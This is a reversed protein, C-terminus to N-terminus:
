IWDDPGFPNPVVDTTIGGVEVMPADIVAWTVGFDDNSVDIWRQVTFYNKCAGPMQDAEPRVVAWPVDMRVAGEPVSFAYGFHVGEKTRVQEKDVVNIIDVRDLGDVIRVERTLKRCGPADCEAVLSAVLPGREKVTIAVPGNRKPDKPDRGAVYFYDNLGLGSKTDVLNAEMGDASLRAMAGTKEDLAVSLGAGSVTEGEATASGSGPAEGASITYRKAGFPPVDSAVFALQGTSLRQSPVAKGDPATVRDGAKTCPGPLLVLDTRPWSCTNLVQVAGKGDPATGDPEHSPVGTAARLLERSQKEGQVAFDQKIKWQSRTFDSDPQSISCHAGWTHEDYLVVNRWAAYFEEAPYSKPRRMAWIAEAQVLREASARNMGTERSSSGAGDEWYPTFDGRVEPIQDGYRREFERLLEGTTTIAMKPYAYKANWDKVFEPLDPDPPGNDGGISYRLQVMDYPYGADALGQLYDFFLEPKVQSISGSLGGHFWAYGKGAMWCLVKEKGSPSVWYFPRDGWAALTHGIRHGPNPGISFYKVGSQAMVPVLGWTYGPVDSIMAADITLGYQSRLRRGCEVLWFLEEPRCLASLENGYLADLHMQGRRVADLFAERKEDTAQKLYSDVAWLVEANWKFKAGTPYDATKRAIEIAQELHGWQRQEVETQVHTYGIDVHSHPLFYVVWRRVPGLEVTGQAVPRGAVKLVVAAQTEAKMAPVADEVTQRGTHLTIEKTKGGPLELVAETSEAYPYDINVRLPLRLKDDEKMLAPLAAVELTTREPSLEPPAVQFFAIERGGVTSHPGIATVQWRVYRATVPDFQAFTTGGPTNAHDVEVKAIPHGFDPGDSFILEASDVTAPDRRDVHRFGAIPVPKGFDFDIFTGTGKSDSAYERKQGGAGAGSLINDAEYGGGPYAAASNIIKPGPLTLLPSFREVSDNARTEAALLTACAAGLLLSRCTSTWLFRQM